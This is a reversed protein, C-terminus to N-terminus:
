KDLLMAKIYDDLLPLSNKDDYSYMLPVMRAINNTANTFTASFPNPSLCEKNLSKWTDSILNLVHQRAIKSSCGQNENLFCTIYSGDHGDQNEDRASGLDDWLRLIKSVSSIIGHNDNILGSYQLENTGNGLLFFMHVFLVEVGSTVMGIKLYEESNPIHGSSFWKAEVLFADCLKAWSKWLSRIPNFGHHEYVKNAIENTINYVTKFSSKMYGPLQDIANIDWRNIAETFITLENITGYVDFIDDIIYILSITKTLMIRHTSLNPNILAAMPWLYCKLPHDRALLLEHSLGLDKWWWIIQNIETQHIRQVMNFELEALEQLVTGNYYKISNKLNCFPLTKHYPNELTHRVMRAEDEELFKMKEQLIQYSFKEAEDLIIEGEIRLQSAEYLAMLGRIDNDLNEDFMNNDGKFRMFFDPSVHFGNQRLIRFCLSIEYLNQHQFLDTNNYQMNRWTLLLNIEDGFHYDIALRQLADIMMLDEFGDDNVKPILRRIHKVLKAHKADNDGEAIFSNIHNCFSQYTNSPNSYPKLQDSTISWIKRPGRFGPVQRIKHSLPRPINQHAFVITPSSMHYIKTLLAM